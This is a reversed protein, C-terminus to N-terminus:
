PGVLRVAPTRPTTGGSPLQPARPNAGRFIVAPGPDDGRATGGGPPYSIVSTETPLLSRTLTTTVPSPAVVGSPPSTADVQDAISAPVQPTRRRVSHPASARGTFIAAGAATSGTATMPLGCARLISLYSCSAMTAARSAQASAPDGATSGYRSPTPTVLPM